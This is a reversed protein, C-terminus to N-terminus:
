FSPAAGQVLGLISCQTCCVHRCLGGCSPGGCRAPLSYPPLAQRVKSRFGVDPSM